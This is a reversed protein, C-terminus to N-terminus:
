LQFRPVEEVVQGSVEVKGDKGAVGKRVNAGFGMIAMGEEAKGDDVVAYVDWSLADVMATQHWDLAADILDGIPIAHPSLDLTSIPLLTSLPLLLQALLSNTLAVTPSPASPAARSYTISRWRASRDQPETTRVIEYLGRLMEDAKVDLAPHFRGLVGEWLGVVLTEIVAGAIWNWVLSENEALEIALQLLRPGRTGSDGLTSVIADLHENSFILDCPLYESSTSILSNTIAVATSQVRSSLAKLAEILSSPHGSSEVFARSSSLQHQM